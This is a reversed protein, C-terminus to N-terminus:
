GREAAYEEYSKWFLATWKNSLRKAQHKRPDYHEIAQRSVIVGYNTKVAEAVESPSEDRALAKVIYRRAETPIMQRPSRDGSEVSLHLTSGCSPCSFQLKPSM